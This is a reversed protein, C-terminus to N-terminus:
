EINEKIREILQPADNKQCHKVFDAKLEAPNSEQTQNVSKLDESIQNLLSGTSTSENAQYNTTTKEKTVFETTLALMSLNEASGYQRLQAPYENKSEIQALIELPQKGRQLSDVQLDSQATKHALKSKVTAITSSQNMSAINWNVAAERSIVAKRRITADTKSGLHDIAFYNILSKPRALIEVVIDARNTEKGITRLDHVITAQSGEDAYIFLHSILPQQNISDQIMNLFVTDKLVFNKPLYLFIGNNLLAMHKLTLQDEDQPIVKKMFYNEILRPHQRFATFVDTLIVGQDEDNEDLTNELSSQGIQTMGIEDEDVNALQLAEKTLRIKQPVVLGLEDFSDFTLHQSSFAPAQELSNLAQIRRDVLWHPEGQENAFTELDNAIKSM